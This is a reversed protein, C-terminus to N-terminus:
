RKIRKVMELRSAQFGLDEYLKIAPNKVHVGLNIEMVPFRKGWQVLRRVLAKGIGNKRFEEEVYVASIHLAKKPALVIPLDEIVAEAFGVARDGVKAMFFARNPNSGIMKKIHTITENWKKNSRNVKHWGLKETFLLMSRMYGAIAPADNKTAIEIKRKM